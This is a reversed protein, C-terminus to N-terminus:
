VKENRFIKFLLKKFILYIKMLSVIQFVFFFVKFNSIFSFIL